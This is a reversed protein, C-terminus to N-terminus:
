GRSGMTGCLPAEWPLDVHTKLAQDIHKAIDEPFETARRTAMDVHLLVAELTYAVTHTSQNVIFVMAHLTKAARSILRVHTTIEQGLRLEALYRIHHEATFLTLGREDIHRHGMGLEECRDALSAAGLDLYHRINMHLNEDLFEPPVQQQRTIPLDLVQEVTPLVAQSYSM